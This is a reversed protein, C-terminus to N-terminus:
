DRPVPRWGPRVSRRLPPLFLSRAAWVAGAAFAVVLGGILWAAM